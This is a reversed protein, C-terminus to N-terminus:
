WWNEVWYFTVGLRVYVKVDNLNRNALLKGVGLFMGLVRYERFLYRVLYIYVVYIRKLELM